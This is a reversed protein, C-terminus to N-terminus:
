NAAIIQTEAEGKKKKNKNKFFILNGTILKKTECFQWMPYKLWLKRSM